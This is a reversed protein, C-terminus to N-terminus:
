SAHRERRGRALRVLCLLAVVGWVVALCILLNRGYPLPVHSPNDAQKGKGIVLPLSVLALVGSVILGGRVAARYAHPVVARVVLGVLIAAPAILADHAVAAGTYYIVTGVPHTKSKNLVVGVAGFVMIASGIVYLVPAYKWRPPEELGSMTLPEHVTM